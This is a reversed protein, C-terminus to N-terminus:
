HPLAGFARALSQFDALTGVVRWGLADRASVTGSAADVRISQIGPVVRHLWQAMFGRLAKAHAASM